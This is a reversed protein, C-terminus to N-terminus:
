GALRSSLEEHLILFSRLRLKLLVVTILVMVLMIVPRIVIVMMLVRMMLVRMMVSSPMMSINVIFVVGRAANPGVPGGFFYVSGEGKIAIPVVYFYLFPFFREVNENM